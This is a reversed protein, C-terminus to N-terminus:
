GGKNQLKRINRSGRPWIICKLFWKRVSLRDTNFHNLSCIRLLREYTERASSIVARCVDFTLNRRFAIRLKSCHAIKRRVASPWPCKSSCFLPTKLVLLVQDYNCFVCYCNSQLDFSSIKFYLERKFKYETKYNWSANM